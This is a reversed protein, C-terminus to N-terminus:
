REYRRESDKLHIEGSLLKPLLADRIGALTHSQEDNTKMQTFWPKVIDAFKTAIEAPPIVISFNNFCGIEVRQRGSTGSMARIAHERFEQNRAVCYVFWPNLPEKASFVIFETSGWGYDDASLFDVLATKGNELCPTIRAFLVDGNKFKSGSGTFERYTVNTVRASATPLSAMDIYAYQLGKAIPRSPNIEFAGSVRAVKWKKPIRGLPSDQWEKHHGLDFDVFWSKFLAKAMAELTENMKRNLEIKDDLAGLISAIARQEPLSPLYLPFKSIAKAPVRQRGTSGEMQQIAYNRFEPKRALYYVFLNDSIGKKGSLVIFETSGHGVIGESLSRVFATKGNELCPTIRALLTDNNQFKSGSGSFEKLEFSRIGRTFPQLSDMSIHPAVRGLSIIRPPNIDIADELLMRQWNRNGM